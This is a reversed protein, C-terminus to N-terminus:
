TPKVKRVVIADHNLCQVFFKIARVPLIRDDRLLLSLFGISIHEFKWPSFFFFFFPFFFGVVVGLISLVSLLSCLQMYQKQVSIIVRILIIYIRKCQCLYHEIDSSYDVLKVTM